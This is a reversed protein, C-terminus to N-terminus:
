GEIFWESWAERAAQIAAPDADVSRLYSELDFFTLLVRGSLGPDVKVDRAIDGVADDRKAQKRLWKRFSPKSM